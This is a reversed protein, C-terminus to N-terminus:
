ELANRVLDHALKKWELHERLQFLGRRMRAIEGSPMNLILEAAEAWKERKNVLFANVLHKFPLRYYPTESAEFVPISGRLISECVRESTGAVGPLCLTFDSNELLELYDAPALSPTGRSYPWWFIPATADEGRLRDPNWNRYSFNRQISPIIKERPGNEKTGVFNLRFRRPKANEPPSQIRTFLQNDCFFLQHFSPGFYKQSVRISLPSLLPFVDQHLLSSAATLLRRRKLLM